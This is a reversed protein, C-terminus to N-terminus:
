GAVHLFLNVGEEEAGVRIQEPAAGAQRALETLRSTDRLNLLWDMLEMYPQTMNETSFNGIVLEGGPLVAERLRRLLRVFVKDTFYDFIGAAWVLDYRREPQFLLANKQIFRVRELHPRNLETAHAVAKADIEVCDFSVDATPHARLWEYMSRGPGSAIKLVRLPRGPETHRDLLRHFYDKRNRVAKTAPQRHMYQDWGALYPVPSVYWQYVRDIIEFDGAYGHPKRLAFGQITAPSLAEGFVDRLVALEVPLLEGRERLFSLEALWAGFEADDSERPGGQEVFRRAFLIHEEM